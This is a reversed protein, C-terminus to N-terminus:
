LTSVVQSLTNLERGGDYKFVNNGDFTLITPYSTIGYLQAVIKNQEVDIYGIIVDPNPNSNALALWTPQLRKCYGCWPVGFFVIAKKGRILTRGFDDPFLMTPYTAEDIRVNIELNKQQKKSKNKVLILILLILIVIVLSHVINANEM